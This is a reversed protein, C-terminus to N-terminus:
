AAGGLQIGSFAGRRAPLNAELTQLVRTTGLGGEILSLARQRSTRQWELDLLARSLRREVRDPALEGATGLVRGLGNAELDRAPARDHAHHTVSLFPTGHWALETLSTGFGILAIRASRMREAMSAADLGRYVHGGLSTLHRAIRDGPDEFAPGLVVDLEAVPIRGSLRDLLRLAIPAIQPALHHPDAGGMSLLVRDRGYLPTRPCRRHAEPIIAYRPGSLVRPSGRSTDSDDHSSEVAHHLGPLLTWSARSSVRADDIVLSAMGAREIRELWASKENPFDLAVLRHATTPRWARSSGVVSDGALRQWTTLGADDGDLFARVSWGRQKAEAAITACRVIHGLGVGAGGALVFDIGLGKPAKTTQHSRHRRVIM